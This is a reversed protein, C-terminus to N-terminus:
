SCPGIESLLPVGDDASTTTAPSAPPKARVAKTPALCLAVAQSRDTAMGDRGSGSTASSSALMGPTMSAALHPRM